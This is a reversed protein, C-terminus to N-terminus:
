FNVESWEEGGNGSGEGRGGGKGRLVKTGFEVSCFNICVEMLGCYSM